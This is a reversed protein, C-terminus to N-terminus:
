AAISSGQQNKSWAEYRAKAIRKEGAIGAEDLVNLYAAYEVLLILKDPTMTRMASTIINVQRQENRSPQEQISQDIGSIAGM